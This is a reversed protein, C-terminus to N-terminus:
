IRDLVFRRRKVFEDDSLAGQARMQDLSRIEGLLDVLPTDGAREKWHGTERVFEGGRGDWSKVFFIGKIATYPIALVEITERATNLLEVEIGYRRRKPMHRVLGKVVEGDWFRIVVKQVHSYLHGGTKFEGDAVRRDLVVNKVSSLPVIAARNNSRSDVPQLEFDPSDLDISTAAAEILEEDGMRVLVTTTLAREGEQHSSM